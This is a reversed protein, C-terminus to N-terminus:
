HGSHLSIGWGVRGHPRHHGHWDHHSYYHPYHPYGYHHQQIVVPPACPVTSARIVHPRPTQMAKIVPTSVGSQTLLIVDETTLPSAIGHSRVHNIILADEVGAQQMAIVDELHVAQAAIQRGLTAEIQARNQAEIRDLEGGVVAGTIAGVGAGILAGTGANGGAMDALVAGTGAGLLGGFLAGQDSRYPSSQCGTMIVALPILLTALPLVHRNM